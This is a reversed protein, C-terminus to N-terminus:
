MSSSPTSLGVSCLAGARAKRPEPGSSNPARKSSMPIATFDVEQAEAPLMNINRLRGFAIAKRCMSINQPREHEWEGCDVGDAGGPAVSAAKEPIVSVPACYEFDADDGAKIQVPTDGLWDGLSSSLLPILRELDDRDDSRLTVVGGQMQEGVRLEGRIGVDLSNAQVIAQWRDLLQRADLGKHPDSELSLSIQLEYYM